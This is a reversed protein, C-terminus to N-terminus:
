PVALETRRENEQGASLGRRRDSLSVSTVNQRPLLLFAILRQALWTAGSRSGLAHLGRRRHGGSVCGSGASAADQRRIRRVALLLGDVAAAARAGRDRNQRRGRPATRMPTRKRPQRMASRARTSSRRPRRPWGCRGRVPARTSATLRSQAGPARRRAGSGPDCYYRDRDAGARRAATETTPDPPLAWPAPKASM